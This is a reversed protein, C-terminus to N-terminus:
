FELMMGVLVLIATTGCLVGIFSGAIQANLQSAVANLNVMGVFLTQNTSTTPSATKTTPAYTPTLTNVFCSCTRVYFEPSFDGKIALCQALVPQNQCGGQTAVQENCYATCNSQDCSVSSDSSLSTSSCPSQSSCFVIKNQPIGTISDSSLFLDCNTMSPQNPPPCLPQTSHNTSYGCLLQEGFSSMVVMEVVLILLTVFWVM